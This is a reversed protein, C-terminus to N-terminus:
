KKKFIKIWEEETLDSYDRVVDTPQYKEYLVIRLQDYEDVSLMGKFFMDRVDLMSYYFMAENSLEM